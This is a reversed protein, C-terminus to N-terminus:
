APPQPGARPLAPVPERMWLDLPRGLLQELQRVDAAYQGLLLRRLAPEVPPLRGADGFVRDAGLRRAAAVIWDQDRDRVYKGLATALRRLAPRAPRRSEGVKAALDQGEFLDQRIQLFACVQRLAAHPDAMVEEFILVLVQEPPFLAFVRRLQDAYLGRYFAEYNQELFTEFGGERAQKVVSLGYQSYARDAPNRLMVILRAHPLQRHIRSVALPAFLYRPTIEGIACAQAPIERRPFYDLYWDMGRQYYTDFFHVEKTRAPLYVQPHRRLHQDLWTTGCRQAGICLFNPLAPPATREIPSSVNAEDSRRSVSM